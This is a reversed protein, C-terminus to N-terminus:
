RRVEVLGQADFRLVAGGRDRVEALIRAFPM